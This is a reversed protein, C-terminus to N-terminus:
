FITIVQGVDYEESVDILTAYLKYSRTYQQM